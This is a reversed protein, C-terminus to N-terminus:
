LWLNHLREVSMRVKHWFIGDFQYMSSWSIETIKVPVIFLDIISLLFCPKDTIFEVGKM